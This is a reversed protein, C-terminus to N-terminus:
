RRPIKFEAVQGAGARSRGFIECQYSRESDLGNVEVPSDKATGKAGDPDGRGACTVRHSRVKSGRSEAGDFTVSATSGNRIATMGTPAKPKVNGRVIRLRRESFTINSASVLIAEEGPEVTVAITGSPGGGSTIVGKGTLSALDDIGYVVALFKAPIRVYAEGIFETVGDAFFHHNALRLLIGPSGTAPDNVIEPPVSTVAANTSIDMGYFAERQQVDEWTAYDTVEGTLMANWQAPLGPTASPVDPCTWPSVSVDCDDANTASVPTAAITLKYTGDGDDVRTVSLGTGKVSAVRPNLSGVDWTIQWDDDLAAAGLEHPHGGMAALNEIAWSMRDEDGPGAGEFYNTDIEWNADGSSVPTGNLTAATVCPAPDGDACWSEGALARESGFFAGGLAVACALMFESKRKLM